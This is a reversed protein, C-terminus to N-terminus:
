KKCNGGGTCPYDFTGQVTVKKNTNSLRESAKFSFSGAIGTKDFKTIKLEGPEDIGYLGDGLSFMATFEGAKADGGLLGGKAITYSKPGFPVNAYKSDAGPMLSLSGDAGGASGCNIILLVLRPDEKMSAAVERELEADSKKDFIQAIAKLATRMEDDTMWYDAGVAGSGGGSTVTKTVDGSVKMECSGPGKGTDRANQALKEGAKIADELKSTDGTKSAQEIAKAVDSASKADTKAADKVNAKSTEKVIEKALDGAARQNAAGQGGTAPVQPGVGFSAASAEGSGANKPAADGSGGCAVSLMLTAAAAPMVLRSITLKM